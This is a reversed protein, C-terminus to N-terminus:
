HLLSLLTQIGALFGQKHKKHTSYSTYINTIWVDKSRLRRRVCYRLFQTEIAYRGISTSFDHLTHLRIARYGCQSDYFYSGVHLYTIVDAVLRGFRNILPTNAARKRIGRVTDLSQDALLPQILLPLEEPSHQGDADMMVVITNPPTNKTLWRLGTTIAASKGCNIPHSIVVAGQQTALPATQDSSGDDVLVINKYGVRQIQTILNQIVSEEQYAAILIYVPAHM